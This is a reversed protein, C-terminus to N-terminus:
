WANLIFRKAFGPNEDTGFWLMCFSLCNTAFGPTMHLHHIRRLLGALWGALWSRHCNTIILVFMSVEHFIHFRKPMWLFRSVIQFVFVIYSFWYFSLSVKQFRIPYIFMSQNKPFDYIFQQFRNRATGILLYCPFKSFWVFRNVDLFLLVFVHMIMYVCVIFFM